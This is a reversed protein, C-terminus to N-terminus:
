LKILENIKFDRVDFNAIGEINLEKQAYILKFCDKKKYMLYGPNLPEALDIQSSVVYDGHIKICTKVKIEDSVIFKDKQEIQFGDTVVIQYGNLTKLTLSM